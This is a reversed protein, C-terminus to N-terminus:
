RAGQNRGDRVRGLLSKAIALICGPTQLGFSRATGKLPPIARFVDTIGQERFLSLYRLVLISSM